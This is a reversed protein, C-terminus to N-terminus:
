SQSKHMNECKQIHKERGWNAEGDSQKTFPSRRIMCFEVWPDDEWLLRWQDHYRFDAKVVVMSNNGKKEVTSIVM